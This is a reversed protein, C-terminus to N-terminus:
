MKISPQRPPSSSPDKKLAEAKDEPKGVYFPAVHLMTRQKPREITQKAICSWTSLVYDVYSVIYLGFLPRLISQRSVGVVRTNQRVTRMIAATSEACDWYFEM